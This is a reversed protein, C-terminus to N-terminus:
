GDEFHLLLGVGVLMTVMVPAWAALMIPMSGSLGLSSVLNTLFYIFFGTIISATILLGGQGQRAPRLSFLAGILVMSVYFIPSLLINHWHLQHGLASFGSHKLTQIFSPLNWFSITDPSAFSNQIDKVTLDTELFYEDHRVATGNPDTLIVNKLHWFDTLLKAESADIRRTFKDVRREERSQKTDFVFIIVKELRIANENSSDVQGAHIITEGKVTSDDYSTNRQRLWIGSGSINMFSSRGKMYKNDLQEYRTIMVCSLPNIITIMLLGIAVAVIITPLLFQWVSVGAVRTIILEHSKTLRTYAMVTAILMVFPFIRQGMQPFKLILMQIMIWMSVDRNHSSRILEFADVMLIIAAFTFFVIAASLLFHRAIYLSLTMPPLTIRM